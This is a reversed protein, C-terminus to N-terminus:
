AFAVGSGASNRGAAGAADPGPAPLLVIQTRWWLGDGDQEPEHAVLDAAQLDDLWRQV